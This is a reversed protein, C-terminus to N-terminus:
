IRVVSVNAQISDEIGHNTKEKKEEETSLLISLKGAALGGGFGKGKSQLNM